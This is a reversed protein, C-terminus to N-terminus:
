SCVNFERLVRTTKKIVKFLNKVFLFSIAMFFNNLPTTARFIDLFSVQPLEEQLTTPQLNSM